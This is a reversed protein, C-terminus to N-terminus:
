RKGLGINEEVYKENGGIGTAEVGDDGIELNFIKNFVNYILYHHFGM